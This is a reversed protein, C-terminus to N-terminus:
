ITSITRATSCRSRWLSGFLREGIQADGFSLGRLPLLEGPHWLSLVTAGDPLAQPLLVLGPLHLYILLAWGCPCWVDRLSLDLPPERHVQGRMRPGPGLQIRRIAM